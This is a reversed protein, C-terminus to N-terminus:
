SYQGGSPLRAPSKSPRQVSGVRIAPRRSAMLPKSPWAGTTLALKGVISLTASVLFVAAWTGLGLDGYCHVLFIVLMLTSALAAVRDIPRKAFKYSRSAFFAGAVLMMWLLSFGILGGYAWLGLISNHPVFPELAYGVTVDPLVIKDIYPHGYGVGLIPSSRLTFFLDYNELDRWETSADSKSDIVSRMLGAVKFVGTEKNWGIMLYIAIVPLSVLMWRVAKRKARTMPKIFFLVLLAMAVEVWVLRRNNAKMGLALIPLVFACLRLHKKSPIEIVLVLCLCFAGAFLMSDTHTTACSMKEVSPCVFHRIGWAAAARVCAAAIITKGLAVQDKPGRFAQQFLFFLVPLYVVRQIQWLSMGFDMGGRVFGWAEIFFAGFITAACFFRLPSAVDVFDDRDVRSGIARRYFSIFFLVVLFLDVGSFFLAKVPITLNLHGLMMAGVPYLPSKWLGSAPEDGPNELTLGLFLLTLAPYRLPVAWLLYLLGFVAVPLMAVGINGNSAIISALTLAAIAAVLVVVPWRRPERARPLNTPAAGDATV